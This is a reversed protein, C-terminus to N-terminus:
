RWGSGADKNYFFENWSCSDSIIVWFSLVRTALYFCTKATLNTYRGQSKKECCTLGKKRMVIIPTIKLPEFVNQHQEHIIRHILLTNKRCTYHHMRATCLKLEIFWPTKKGFVALIHLESINFIEHGASSERKIHDETEGKSQLPIGSIFGV